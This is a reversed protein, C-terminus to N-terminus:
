GVAGVCSEARSRLFQALYDVHPYVWREFAEEHQPEKDFVTINSGIGALGPKTNVELLYPKGDEGIAFDFAVELIEGPHLRELYAALGYSENRIEHLLEASAEPGALDFLLNETPVIEGGQSVNSVDSGTPSLRAEHLWHWADGDNLMTVRIDFTSGEHRMTEVGHQIIYKRKPDVSDRVLELADEVNRAVSRRRGGQHYRTVVLGDDTRRLTVIRNCKSPGRPKIFSLQSTQVFHDLQGVASSFPECHPHMSEHYGRVLKYTELKDGLLESFAHPVYIRIGQRTCWRGFEEYGMGEEIIRRTRSSWNGVVKPVPARLPTFQGQDFRFGQVTERDPSIDRPSHVFLRYGCPRLREELLAIRNLLSPSFTRNPNTKPPPSYHFGIYNM